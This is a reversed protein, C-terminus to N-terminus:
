CGRKEPRKRRKPSLNKGFLTQLAKENESLFLRIAVRIGTVFIFTLIWDLIFVSRPFGQFRNIFLIAIIIVASSFTTAKLVNFFDFFSTYRWMGKYLGFVMFIFLKFPLIYQITSKLNVWEAPPIKGEFRLLYAMLYAALVLSIDSFLLLYFNKRRIIDRM